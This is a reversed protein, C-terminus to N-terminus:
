VILQSLWLAIVVDMQNNEVKSSGGLVETWLRMKNNALRGNQRLLTVAKLAYSKNAVSKTYKGSKVGVVVGEECLGLFASNPCGKRRSRLSDPFISSAARKWAEVPDGSRAAEKAALVACDGYKAM